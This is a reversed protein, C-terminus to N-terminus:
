VRVPLYFEKLLRVEDEVRASTWGLENRMLREVKLIAEDGPYGAAGLGTRRLVTDELTLAMENRAVEVIQAGIIPLSPTIREALRPDAVAPAIVREADSGYIRQLYEWAERDVHRAPSPTGKPIAGPLRLTDTHPAANHGMQALALTVAYEAAVRATTYKVAM